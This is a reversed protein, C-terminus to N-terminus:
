RAPLNARVAKELDKYSQTRWRSDAPLRVRLTQEMAPQSREDARCGPGQDFSGRRDRGGREGSRESPRSRFAEARSLRASDAAGGPGRASTTSVGRNAIAACWSARAAPTARAGRRYSCRRAGDAVVDRILHWFSLEPPKENRRGRERVSPVGLRMEAAEYPTQDNVAAGKGM